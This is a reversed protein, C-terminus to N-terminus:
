MPSTSKMFKQLNIEYVESQLPQNFVESHIAPESQPTSSIPSLMRRRWTRKHGITLPAVSGIFVQSCKISLSSM